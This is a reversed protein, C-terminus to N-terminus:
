DARAACSPDGHPARPPFEYVALTLGLALDDPHELDPARGTDWSLGKIKVSGCPDHLGRDYQALSQKYARLDDFGCVGPAGCAFDYTAYWSKTSPAYESLHVQASVGDDHHARIRFSHEGPALDVYFCEEARAETKFLVMGDVMVWLAHEMPGVRVEFRKQGAAPEGAGGDAPASPDRCECRDPKCLPGALTAHTEPEPPPLITITSGATGGGCAALAWLASVALCPAAAWARDHM